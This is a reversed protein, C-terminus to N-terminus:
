EHYCLPLDISQVYVTRKFYSNIHSISKVFKRKEFAHLLASSLKRGQKQNINEKSITCLACVRGPSFYKKNWHKVYM